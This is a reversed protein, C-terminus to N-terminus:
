GIISPLTTLMVLSWVVHTIMPALVGRSVYRQVAFLGGMLVGAFVLLPSGTVATVAVYIATTLVLRRREPLAAYLAGRFFIEEGVANALALLLVVPANGRRAHDLVDAAWHRLPDIERIVFAGVVFVAGALLGILTPAAWREFRTSTEPRFPVPGAALGGATWVVAVALLLPYFAADGPNTALSVGLLACGVVLTLVIVPLRRASCNV